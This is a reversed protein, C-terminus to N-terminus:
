CRQGEQQEELWKKAQAINDLAEKKTRFIMTGPTSIFMGEKKLNHCFIQPDAKCLETTTTWYIRM